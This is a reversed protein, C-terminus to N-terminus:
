VKEYLHYDFLHIYSSFTSEPTAHGAIGALAWYTNKDNNNKSLFIQKIRSCKDQTYIRLISTLNSETFILYLNNLASHRFSHFTFRISGGTMHHFISTVIQSVKNASMPITSAAEFFMLSQKNKKASNRIIATYRNLESIEVPELMIDLPLQRLASGSKNTGYINNTITCWRDSSIDIDAQKLKLIEGLRM